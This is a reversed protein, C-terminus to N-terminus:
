EEAELLLESKLFFVGETVITEGETLGSLIEVKGGTAHGVQVDRRLFHNESQPVFVFQQSEHVAIASQPVCLCENADGMPLSVSVFLGPRLRGDNALAAVIPISNSMPDVERGVFHVKAQLTDSFAPASVTLVDGPKLAIAQWQSERVQAEVWLQSTDALILLSEGSAVREGDALLRREITGTLPSRVDVKALNSEDIGTEMSSLDSPGAYGLLSTAQQRYLELQRSASDVATQAEALEQKADFLLQEINARLAADAAEYETNRQAATRGAIAGQAAALSVRQLQSKAFILSTYASLLVERSAGVQASAYAQRIVEPSESRNIAAILQELGERRQKLFDLQNNLLQLEAVQKRVAARAEGIEPCSLEVLVEGQKVQDGPKVNFRLVNGAVATRLNIHKSQDYTIRGAVSTSDQLVDRTVTATQLAAKALKIKNLEVHTRAETVPEVAVEGAAEGEFMWHWGWWLGILAAISLSLTLVKRLTFVIRAM